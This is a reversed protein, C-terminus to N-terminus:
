GRRNICSIDEELHGNQKSCSWGYQQFYNIRDATVNFTQCWFGGTPEKWTKSGWYGSVSQQCCIVDGDNTNFLYSCTYLTNTKWKAYLTVASNSTYSGGKAYNTGTGDSKTNWGDFTYNSRTPTNSSLTLNVGYTKTQNSPMSNVTDTTNKNYAVTYTDPKCQTGDLHYGTNCSINHECTSENLSCTGNAVSPCNNCYHAEYSKNGTSGSSITVTKQLTSGNSGTWGTFTKGSPPTAQNITIAASEITYSNPNSSHNTGGNLTYTISYNIPNCSNGDDNNNKRYGTQCDNIRCIPTVSNDTWNQEVWSNVHARACSTSCSSAGTSSTTGNIGNAGTPNCATCSMAEASSISAVACPVCENNKLFTGAQCAQWQAVLEINNPIRYIKYTPVIEGNIKVYEETGYKYGLFRNGDKKPIESTTLDRVQADYTVSVTKNATSSGFKGGNPNLTITFNKPECIRTTPNLEYGEGVCETWYAVVRETDRNKRLVDHNFYRSDVVINGLSDVIMEKKDQGLLTQNEYYYGQFAKTSSGPTKIKNIRNNSTHEKNAKYFGVGFREEIETDGVEDASETIFEIRYVNGVYESYDYRGSTYLVIDKSEDTLDIGDYIKIKLSTIVDMEDNEGIYKGQDYGLSYFIYGETDRIGENRKEEGEGTNLYDELELTRIYLLKATKESERLANEKNILKEEETSGPYSDIDENISKSKSTDLYKLTTKINTEDIYSRGSVVSEEEKVIQLRRKSDNGLTIECRQGDPSCWADRIGQNKTLDNNIVRTISSSYVLIDTNEHVVTYAERVKILTALLSVLVISVLVISVVLEILTFGKKNM